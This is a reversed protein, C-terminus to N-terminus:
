GSRTVYLRRAALGEFFPGPEIVQEPLWVGPRRVEDAYFGRAMLTAGQATGASDNRGALRLRVKGSPGHVEVIVAFTDQGAYVMRLRGFLRVLARRIGARRLLSGLGVQM